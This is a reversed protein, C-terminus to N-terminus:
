GGPLSLVLVFQANNLAHLAWCMRWDRTKFWLWTTAVSLALLVVFQGWFTPFHMLVFLLVSAVVALPTGIAKPLVSLMWRRFALEEAAPGVVVAMAWTLGVPWVDLRSRFVELYDNYADLDTIGALVALAGVAFVVFWSALLALAKWRFSRPITAAPLWDRNAMSLVVILALFLVVALIEALMITQATQERGFAGFVVIVGVLMTLLFGWVPVLGLWFLKWRGPRPPAAQLPQPLAALGETM